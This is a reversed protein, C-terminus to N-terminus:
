QAIGLNPLQQSFIDRALDQGLKIQELIIEKTALAMFVTLDALTEEGYVKLMLWDHFTRSNNNKEIDEETFDGVIRDLSDLSSYMKEIVEKNLEKDTNVRKVLPCQRNLPIEEKSLGKDIYIQSFNSARKEYLESPWLGYMKCDLPRHEYVSCCKNEEDLLMCPKILTEKGFKEFEFKFFYEISKCILEVIENQSSNSWIHTILDLFESYRMQPCAAKCCCLSRKCTTTLDVENHIGQIVDHLKLIKKNEM